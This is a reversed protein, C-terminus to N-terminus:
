LCQTSRFPVPSVALCFAEALQEGPSPGQQGPVRFIAETPGEAERLVDRFGHELNSPPSPTPHRQGPFWAGPRPLFTVMKSLYASRACDGGEGFCLINGCLPWPVGSPSGRGAQPGQHGNVLPASQATGLVLASRTSLTRLILFICLRPSPQGTYQHRWM